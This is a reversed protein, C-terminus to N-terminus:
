LGLYRILEEESSENLPKRIKGSVLPLLSKGRAKKKHKLNLYQEYSLIVANGKKYRVRTPIAHIAKELIGFLEKRLSTATTTRM